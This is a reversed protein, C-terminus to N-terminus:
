ETPIRSFDPLLKNILAGAKSYILAHKKDTCNGKELNGISVGKWHPKNYEAKISDGKCSLQKIREMNDMRTAVNANWCCCFDDYTGTFRYLIRNSERVLKFIIAISTGNEIYIGTDSVNSCHEFCVNWFSSVWKCSPHQGKEDAFMRTDYIPYFHPNSVKDEMEKIKHYLMENEEKIKYLEVGQKTFAQQQDQIQKQAEKLKEKCEEIQTVLSTDAYGRIAELPISVMERSNQRSGDNM